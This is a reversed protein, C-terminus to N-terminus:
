EKPPLVQQFKAGFSELVEKKKPSMYDDRTLFQYQKHQDPDALVMLDRGFANAKAVYYKIAM